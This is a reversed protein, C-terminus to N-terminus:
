GVRRLPYIDVDVGKAYHILPANLPDLDSPLSVGSVALLRNERMMVRAPQVPYPTHHIQGRYLGGHQDASYLLYREVLFHELGGPTAPAPMGMPEYAVVCDAGPTGGWGGRRQAHYDVRDGTKEMVIRANFYPLHFLTRALTVAIPNSADLSFFWVGPDRGERHVYTRVNIEHFNSLGPVSPSWLPRVGRMDFPVLGLYANGDDFTDVTLGPPLLAQIADPPLPWHLFLLERWLQRMVRPGEPRQTPAIRDIM